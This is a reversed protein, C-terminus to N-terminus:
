EETVEVTCSGRLFGTAVPVIEQSRRKLEECAALIGDHLTGGGIIADAVIRSADGTNDMERAPQELFKAQTGAAHHAELNEHVYIAYPATYTVRGVVNNLGRAMQEFQAAVDTSAMQFEM